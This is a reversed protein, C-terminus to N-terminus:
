ESAKRRRHPTAIQLVSPRLDDCCQTCRYVRSGANGESVPIWRADNVCGPTGCQEGPGTGALVIGRKEVPVVHRTVGPAPRGGAKEAAARTMHFSASVDGADSVRIVAYSYPRSSRKTVSVVGFTADHTTATITGAM